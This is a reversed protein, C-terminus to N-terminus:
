KQWVEYFCHHCHKFKQFGYAGSQVYVRKFNNQIFINDVYEKHEKETFDNEIIITRINDLIEREERLIHYLAGECDAVLVNFNMNYKDKLERFTLTPVLAYDKTTEDLPYTTWGYQVLKRKSIASNEIKFNLNNLNKNHELQSAYEQMSELVLLNSSDNLISAIVCSNRGINGGLELVVDDPNIYTIAMVQEPYEDELSGHDIKLFYHLIILKFEPTLDLHKIDYWSIKTMLNFKKDNNPLIILYEEDNLILNNDYDDKIKIVKKIGFIPDGFISARIDDNKPIFVINSFYRTIDTYNDEIGYLIKM